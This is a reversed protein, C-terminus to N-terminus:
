RARRLYVYYAGGGGHKLHAETVQLVVQALPPVSLWHPVNHRLVGLRVPIPGGDDRDKGKGTVVLVLRKGDAHAKLIFRTLAPHAQDLTKGHLDIKGEPALKGRKLKGFAKRDMKVPAQALREPLGPLVDHGPKKGNSRAGLDFKEVPRPAPKPRDKGIAPLKPAPRDPHLPQATDAVKRWLDLEDPRLRRRTM